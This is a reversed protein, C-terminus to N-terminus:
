VPIKKPFRSITQKLILGLVRTRTEAAASHHTITVKKWTKEKKEPLGVVGCKGWPPIGRYETSLVPRWVSVSFGTDVENNIFGGTLRRPTWVRFKSAKIQSHKSGFQQQVERSYDV